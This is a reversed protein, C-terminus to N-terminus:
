TTNRYNIELLFYIHSSFEIPIVHKVILTMLAFTTTPNKYITINNGWHNAQTTITGMTNPSAMEM